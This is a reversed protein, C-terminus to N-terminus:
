RGAAAIRRWSAADPRASAVLPRAACRRARAMRFRLSAGAVVVPIRRSVSLGGAGFDCTLRLQQQGNQRVGAAGSAHAMRRRWWPAPSSGRGRSCATAGRPHLRRGLRSRGPSVLRVALIWPHPRAAAERRPKVWAHGIKERNAPNGYYTSGRQREGKRQMSVLPKSPFPGSLAASLPSNPRRPKRMSLWRCRNQNMAPRCSPRVRNWGEM